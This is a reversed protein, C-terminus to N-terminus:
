TRVEKGAVAPTALAAELQDLLEELEARPSDNRFVRDGETVEFAVAHGALGRDPKEAAAIRLTGNGRNVGGGVPLEGVALDLLAQSLLAAEALSLDDFRLQVDLELGDKWIPAESYLAGRLSGGTLRDIAVHQVVTRPEDDLLHGSVRVKSRRARPGAVSGFLTDILAKPDHHGVAEAVHWVRHRIVGKLSSGPVWPLSRFQKSQYDALM